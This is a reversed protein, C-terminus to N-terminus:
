TQKATRFFQELERVASINEFLRGSGTAIKARVIERHDPDTAIAVARQAYDEISSTVCDDMGMMRYMALTLRGRLLKSPLTIVPVGLALAEYTTNGGGFHIPDLMVDCLATLALFKEYSLRDIWIVRDAVDRMMRGFRDTLLDDWNKNLGHILVLRGRPDRRLVQAIPEDFEPHFKWLMQLCGYLTADEPLGFEARTARAAAAPLAPRHYYVGLERLRVLKETYHAENGPPDLVDSSIFYDITPIGSTVPHGWTVCQVPALRTFAISYTIPDMGLDTYFLIDPQVAAVAERAPKVIQAVPAWRDVREAIYKSVSDQPDGVAFVTVEFDERNINAILGRNLRGITHEKFFRSIFALHIRHRGGARPKVAGTVPPVILRTYAETVARDDWGQYALSFLVPAPEPEIHLRLGKAGLANIGSVIQERRAELEEKSRYVPPMMITRLVRMRNLWDIQKSRSGAPVNSTQKELLQIAHDFAQAALDLRGQEELTMALISFATADHPRLDASRTASRLAAAAEGAEQQASALNIWADAFDPNLEVAKLHERIADDVRGLKNLVSGLNNHGPAYNLDLQVARRCMVLAEDLRGARELAAGLNSPHSPAQPELDLLWRWHAAAQDMHDISTYAAALQTHALVDAPRLVLAAELHRIADANRDLARYAAAVNIHHEPVGPHAAIAHEILEAATQFQGAQHALVGLFHLADPHNPEAALVQRYISEAERLRGARHHEIAMLIAQAVTVQTM